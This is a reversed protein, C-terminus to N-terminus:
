RVEQNVVHALHTALGEGVYAWGHRGGTPLYNWAFGVAGGWSRMHEISWWRQMRGTRARELLREGWRYAAVPDAVSYFETIDAISRLPNGLPLATIPDGYAAAWWTPLGHVGRQGAIGCGGIVPRGPMGAGEPRSPEAILAAGLVELHPHDGRGIEAAVDGAIGAGASYGGIVVQNPSDRIADLLLSRGFARSDGYSIAFGGYTAPYEVIRPAFRAPDLGRMFTECVGDGGRPFGTGPLMLVDIM